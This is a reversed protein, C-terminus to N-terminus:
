VPRVPNNRLLGQWYEMHTITVDSDAATASLAISAPAIFAQAISVHSDLIFEAAQQAM